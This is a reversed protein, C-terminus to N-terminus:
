RLVVTNGTVAGADTGFVEAFIFTKRSVDVPGLRSHEAGSAVALLKVTRSLGYSISVLIRIYDLAFVTMLVDPCIGRIVGLVLLVQTVKGALDTV